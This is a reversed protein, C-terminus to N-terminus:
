YNLILIIKDIVEQMKNKNLNGAKYLILSKDATFLRNPRIHSNIDLKGQKFDSNQLKISYIDSRSSTILCLIVDDGELVSIILAPRKKASSLDSFPFPIVIVDGKVLKELSWRGRKNVM